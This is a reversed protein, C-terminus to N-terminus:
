VGCFLLTGRTRQWAEEDSRPMQGTLATIDPLSLGSFSSATMPSMVGDLVAARLMRLFPRPFRRARWRKPDQRLEDADITYGLSRAFSLPRVSEEFRRSTTQTIANMEEGLIRTLEAYRDLFQGFERIGSVAAPAIGDDARLVFARGGRVRVCRRWFSFSPDASICPCRSHSTWFSATV